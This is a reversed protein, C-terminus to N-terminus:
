MVESKMNNAEYVMKCGCWKCHRIENNGHPREFREVFRNCEPCIYLNPTAAKKAIRDQYNKFELTINKDILKQRLFRQGEIDNLLEQATDFVNESYWGEPNAKGAARYVLVCNKDDPNQMLINNEILKDILQLCEYFTLSEEISKTYIGNKTEYFVEM